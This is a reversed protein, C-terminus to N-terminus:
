GHRKRLQKNLVAMSMADLNVEGGKRFTSFNASQKPEEESAAAAGIASGAGIQYFPQGKETVSERFEPTIDISHHPQTGMALAARDAEEQTAYRGAITFGDEPVISFPMANSDEYVKYKKGDVPTNGLNMRLGTKEGYRNVFAPLMQDYFGIMGEGGFQLDLGSLTRYEPEPM